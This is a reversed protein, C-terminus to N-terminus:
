LLVGPRYPDVTYTRTHDITGFKVGFFEDGFLPPRYKLTCKYTQLQTLMSLTNNTAGSVSVTISIDKRNAFYGQLRSQTAAAGASVGYNTSAPAVAEIRVAEAALRDFKACDGLFIMANIVVAALALIVPICVALEVTMQGRNNGFVNKHMM